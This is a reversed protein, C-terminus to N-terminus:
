KIDNPLNCRTANKSLVGQPFDAVHSVELGLRVRRAKVQRVIVAGVAAGDEVLLM